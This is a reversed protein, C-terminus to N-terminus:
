KVFQIYDIYFSHNLAGEGGMDFEIQKIKTLETADIATLDITYEVWDTTGSVFQAYAVTNARYNKTEGVATDYSQLYLRLFQTSLDVKARIKIASYGSLDSPFYVQKYDKNPASILVLSAYANAAATVKAVKEGDVEVGSVATAGGALQYRYTGYISTGDSYRNLDGESEFDVVNGMDYDTAYVDDVYFSYSLDSAASENKFIASSVGIAIRYVPTKWSAEFGLGKSALFANLDISFENWGKQIAWNNKAVAEGTHVLFQMNVNQLPSYIRFGIYKKSSVNKMVDTQAGTCDVKLLPYDTKTPDSNILKLEMVDEGEFTTFAMESKCAYKEAPDLGWGSNATGDSLMVEYRSDLARDYYLKFVTSGDKAIRAETLNNENEEAFAYGSIEQPEQTVKLKAMGSETKSYEESLTYSGDMNELYYEVKYSVTETEAVTFPLEKESSNGSGDTAKYTLKYDGCAELSVQDGVSYNETTQDPLTLTVSVSPMDNYPAVSANDTVDIEPITLLEGLEPNEEMDYPLGLAPKETDKVATLTITETFVEGEANEVRYTLSYEGETEVDLLYYGGTRRASVEAGNPKKVSVTYDLNEGITNPIYPAPLQAKYGVLYSFDQLNELKRTDQKETCASLCGLAMVASLLCVLKKKM